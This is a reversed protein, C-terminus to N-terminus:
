RVDELLIGDEVLNEIKNIIKLMNAFQEDTSAFKGSGEIQKYKEFSYARAYLNAFEEYFENLPLKTPFVTHFFDFLRYDHTILEDYRERFLETGPFPSLITFTPHTLGMREVYESLRQFDQRDYQPDVVFYASLEVENQKLIHIAKENIEATNSKGWERLEKDRFSEIGVLLIQLGVDKWKEILDPRKVVTDPRGYLKYKKKIGGEKLLSTLRESRKLDDLTNDDVFDIYESEIGAIEDVVLEAKKTRYKGKNMIWLSCFNCKYPCGRSSVLSVIPRWTGRFYKDRDGVTLERSPIPMEDLNILEYDGTFFRMGNKKLYLGRISGIDEKKEYRKIIEAFTFDAEGVVIIDVYEEDFDNPMMTAHHGGVITLIKPDFEKAQKLIEKGLHMTAAVTGTAVVDPEFAELKEQLGRGLRMDLIEVDHHLEVEAAILELALPEALGFLGTPVDFPSIPPEVLLIRMQGERGPM